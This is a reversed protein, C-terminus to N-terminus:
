NQLNEGLDLEGVTGHICRGSGPYGHHIAAVHPPVEILINGRSDGM